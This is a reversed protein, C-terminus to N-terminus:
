PPNNFLDYAAELLQLDRERRKPRVTLAILQRAEARTVWRIAQTERCDFRCTDRLPRMLFYENCTRSGVFRGPIKRIIAAQIGTEEYVERLATQEPTEGPDPKGKPFTWVSGRYHGRPERLLVQGDANILVGGYSQKMPQDAPHLAQTM